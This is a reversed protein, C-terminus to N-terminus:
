DRGTGEWLMRQDELRVPVDSLKRPSDQRPQVRRPQGKPAQKKRKDVVHKMHNLGQIVLPKNRCSRCNLGKFVLQGVAQGQLLVTGTAYATLVMGGYRFRMAKERDLKEFRVGPNQALWARAEDEHKLKM